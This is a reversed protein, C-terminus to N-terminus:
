RRSVFKDQGTLDGLRADFNEQKVGNPVQAQQRAYLPVYPEHDDEILTAARAALAANVAAQAEEESPTATPAFQQAM